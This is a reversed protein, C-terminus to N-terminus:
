WHHLHSIHDFISSGHTASASPQSSLFKMYFAPSVTASSPHLDYEDALEIDEGGRM